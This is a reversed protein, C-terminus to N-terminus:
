RHENAFEYWKKTFNNLKVDNCPVFNSYKKGGYFGPQCWAMVKEHTTKGQIFLITFCKLEYLKTFTILQGRPVDKGNDKTEFVLFKGKREIIGDIDMPTILGKGVAGQTFAWDFIGDFGYSPSSLFNNPHKITEPINM